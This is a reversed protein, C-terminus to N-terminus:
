ATVPNQPTSGLASTLFRDADAADSLPEHINNATKTSTSSATKRREADEPGLFHILYTEGQTLPRGL